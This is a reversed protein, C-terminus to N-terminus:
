AAPHPPTNGSAILQAEWDRRESVTQETMLAARVYDCPLM